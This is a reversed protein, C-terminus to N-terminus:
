ANRAQREITEILDAIHMPKALYDSAGLGLYRERDGKMANATLAVIPVKGSLGSLARIQQTAAVGDMGPLGVDMLVVDYANAAAAAVADAGCDVVEVEYGADELVGRIMM